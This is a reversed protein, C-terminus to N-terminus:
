PKSAVVGKEWTLVLSTTSASSHIFIWAQSSSEIVTRPLQFQSVGIKTPYLRFNKMIYAYRVSRTTSYTSTFIPSLVVDATTAYNLNYATTIGTNNAGSWDATLFGMKFVSSSVQSNGYLEGLLSDYGGISCRGNVIFHGDLGYEAFIPDPIQGELGGGMIRNMFNYSSDMILIYCVDQTEVVYVGKAATGAVTYAKEGSASTSAGTPATTGNGCNTITKGPDSQCSTGTASTTRFNLDVTPSTKQTILFATGSNSNTTGAKLQWYGPASTFHAILANFIDSFAGSAATLVYSKTAM